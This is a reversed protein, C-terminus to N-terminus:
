KSKLVKHTRTARANCNDFATSLDAEEQNAEHDPLSPDINKDHYYQNLAEFAATAQSDQQLYLDTYHELEEQLKSIRKDIASSASAM